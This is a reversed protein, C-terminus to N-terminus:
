VLCESFYKKRIGMGKEKIVFASLSFHDIWPKFTYEWEYDVCNEESIISKRISCNSKICQM